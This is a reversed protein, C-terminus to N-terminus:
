AERLVKNRLAMLGPETGGYNKLLSKVDSLRGDLLASYVEIYFRRRNNFREVFKELIASYVIKRMTLEHLPYRTIVEKYTKNDIKGSLLLRHMLVYPLVHLILSEDEVKEKGLIFALGKVFDITSFYTRPGLNVLSTGAPSEKLNASPEKIYKLYANIEDLFAVLFIEAVQNMQIKSIDERIKLIDDDTLYPIEKSSLYEGYEERIRNFEKWKEKVETKEDLLVDLSEKHLKPNKLDLSRKRTDDIFKWLGLPPQVEISIHFRDLIARSIPSISVDEPNTTAVFPPKGLKEDSFFITKDLYSFEARDVQHILINQTKPPLRSLEDVIKIAPYVLVFLSWRVKEEGKTLLEGLHPRGTTKEETLQSHGTLKSAKSTELPIRYILSNLSEALTTKGLGFDGIALINKGLIASLVSYLVADNIRIKGPLELNYWNLYINGLIYSMIDIVKKRM